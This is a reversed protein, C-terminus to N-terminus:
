YSGHRDWYDLAGCPTSFSAHHAIYNLGWDIQASPTSLYRRGADSERWDPGFYLSMMAQPIGRATSSPNAARYNWSSERQWLTVLCAYEAAGWGYAVIKRRALEKASAPTTGRTGPPATPSAGPSPSAPPATTGEASPATTGDGPPATTGDGPPATADDDPSPSAPPATTGEAPPPSPRAAPTRAPVQGTGVRVEGPVPERVVVTVAEARSTEVGDVSTVLYTTVTRGPTGPSVTRREGAPLTPDDVEVVEPDVDVEVTEYTWTAAVVLVRMGSVVPADLDHSVARDGLVVDQEALLGRVDTATTTVPREVGDVVLVAPLAPRRGTGRSVATPVDTAAADATPLARGVSLGAGDPVLSTLAFTTAAAVVLV